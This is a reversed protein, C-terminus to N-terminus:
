FTRFKDFIEIATAKLASQNLFPTVGSFVLVHTPFLSHNVNVLNPTDV